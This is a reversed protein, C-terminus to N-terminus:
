RKLLSDYNEGTGRVGRPGEMVIEDNGGRMNGLEDFYLEPLKGGQERLDALAFDRRILTPPTTSLDFATFLRRRKGAVIPNGVTGGPAHGVPFITKGSVVRAKTWGGDGNPGTRGVPPECCFILIM